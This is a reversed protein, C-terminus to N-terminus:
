RSPRLLWEKTKASDGGMWSSDTRIVFDGSGVAEISVDNHGTLTPHLLSPRTWKGDSSRSLAYVGGDDKALVIVLLGSEQDVAADMEGVPNTFIRTKRGFGNASWEVHYAGM